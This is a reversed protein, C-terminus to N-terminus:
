KVNQGKLECGPYVFLRCDIPGNFFPVRTRYYLNVLRALDPNGTILGGTYGSCKELDAISLRVASHDTGAAPYVIDHLKLSADLYVTVGPNIGFPCVGGIDHGILPEVSEAPIMKAKLGFREKYKKNDILFQREKRLLDERIYYNSTSYLDNFDKSDFM